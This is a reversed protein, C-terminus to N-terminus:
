DAPLFRVVLTAGTTLRKWIGLPVSVSRGYVRGGAPFQYAVMPTREKTNTRWLSTITAEVNKGKDSLLAEEATQRVGVQELEVGAVVGGVILLGALAAIAMGKRSLHVERIGSNLLEAPPTWNRQLKALEQYRDM